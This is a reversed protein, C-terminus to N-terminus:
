LVVYVFVVCGVYWNVFNIVELDIEGNILGVEIVDWIICWRDEVFDVVVVEEGVEWIRSCSIWGIFYM